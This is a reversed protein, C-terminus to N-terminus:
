NQFADAQTAVRCCSNDLEQLLCHDPPDTHGVPNWFDPPTPLLIVPVVSIRLIEMNLALYQTWFTHAPEKSISQAVQPPFNLASIQGLATCLQQSYLCKVKSLCLCPFERMRKIEPSVSIASFVLSFLDIFVNQVHSKANM